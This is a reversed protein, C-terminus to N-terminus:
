PATPVIGTLVRFVQLHEAPTLAEPRREGEV